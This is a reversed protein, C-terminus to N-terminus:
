LWRHLPRGLPWGQAQPHIQENRQWLDDGGQLWVGYWVKAPIAVVKKHTERPHHRELHTAYANSVSTCKMASSRRQKGLMLNQAYGRKSGDTNCRSYPYLFFLGGVHGWPTFFSGRVSERLIESFWRHCGGQPISFDPSERGSKEIESWRNCCFTFIGVM